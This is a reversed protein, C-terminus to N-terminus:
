SSAGSYKKIGLNWIIRSLSLLIVSIFLSTVLTRINMKNLLAEAPVTITVGIPIIYTFLIRFFNPFVSVPWKGTWEFCQPFIILLNSSDLIWFALSAIIFYLCIIIMFGVILTAIFMLLSGISFNIGYIQKITLIFITGFIVETLSLINIVKIGSTFQADIPLLLVYDFDGSKIGQSFSTLSPKIFLNLLGVMIRYIGILILIDEKKWTNIRTTKSFMITIIVISLSVDVLINIIRTFLEARYQLDNLINIKLLCYFIKCLKM